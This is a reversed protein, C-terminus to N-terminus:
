SICNLCHAFFAICERPYPPINQWLPPLGSSLFVESGACRLLVDRVTRIDREVSSCSVQHSSAIPGYIDRRVNQLRSDDEVALLVADAFYEYGLYCPHLGASQMLLYLENRKM